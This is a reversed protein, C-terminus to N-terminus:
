PDQILYPLIERLRQFIKMKPHKYFQRARNAMDNSPILFSNGGIALIPEADFKYEDGIMLFEEPQIGLKNILRIYCAENKQSVIESHSFYHSILSAELKKEQYLFDGQTLVILTYHRKLQSLVEEVDDLLKIPAQLLEKGLKIIKEVSEVALSKDQVQIATEILSLIYSKVGHGYSLFNNEEIRKFENMFSNDSFYKNLLRGIEHEVKEFYFGDKWLTDDADFAIVKISM